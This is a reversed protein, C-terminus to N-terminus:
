RVRHRFPEIKADQTRTWRRSRGGPPLEDDPPTGILRHGL